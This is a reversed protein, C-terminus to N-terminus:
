IRTIAAKNQLLIRVGKMTGEFGQVGKQTLHEVQCVGRAERYIRRGALTGIFQGSINQNTM